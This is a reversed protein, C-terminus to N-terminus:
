VKRRAARWVAAPGVALFGAIIRPLHAFDEALTKRTEDDTILIGRRMAYLNFLTSVITFTVSAIISTALKPTGRSWHVLFEVAHNCSPLVIVAAIAAAWPPEAKRLAQTVSGSAGALLGRYSFEALMAGIAAGFGASLNSIFFIGARIIGSTVASKWNWRRVLHFWPDRVIGAFVDVVTRRVPM